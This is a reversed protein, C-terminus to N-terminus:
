TVPGPSLRQGALIELGPRDRLAADLAGRRIRVEGSGSGAEGSLCARRHLGRVDRCAPRSTGWCDYPAYSASTGQSVAAGPAPHPRVVDDLDRAADRGVGGASPV